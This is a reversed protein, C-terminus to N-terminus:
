GTDVRREKRVNGGFGRCGHDDFSVWNFICHPRSCINGRWFGSQAVGCTNWPILVTVTGADELTRSLNESCPRARCVSREDDQRAGCHRHVPRVGVRQVGRMCRCNPWDIWPATSGPRPAETMRTLMGTASPGLTMACVILWVTNLMGNLAARLNMRWRTVRPSPRMLAMAQMSAVYSAAGFSLGEGAVQRIVDPQFVVATLAGLLVGVFLAPAAPVKRAIM